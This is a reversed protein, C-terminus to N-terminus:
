LMFLAPTCPFATGALSAPNHGSFNSQEKNCLFHHLDMNGEMPCHTHDGPTWNDVKREVIGGNCQILSEFGQERCMGAHTWIQQICAPFQARRQAHEEVVLSEIRASQRERHQVVIVM